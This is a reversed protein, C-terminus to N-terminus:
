RDSLSVDSYGKTKRKKRIQEYKASRIGSTLGCNPRCLGHAGIESGGAKLAPAYFEDVVDSSKAAFSIPQKVSRMRDILRFNQSVRPSRSLLFDGHRGAIVV